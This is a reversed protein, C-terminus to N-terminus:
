ICGVHIYMDPVSFIACNADGASAFRTTISTSSEEGNKWDNNIKNCSVILLLHGLM